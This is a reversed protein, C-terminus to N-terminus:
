TAGAREQLARVRLALYQSLGIGLAPAQEMLALLEERELRLLRCAERARAADSRPVGDLTSLEGFFGGPEVRSLLEGGQCLEVEGTLVFYLGDGEDGEAYVVEGEGFRLSELVEALSVLQQTSLRDFAPVGQLQVAVDMPDLVSWSDGIRAREEVALPSFSGALRRTLPDEDALLESWAESESPLSRRLQAAVRAARERWAGGELLPVLETRASGPLLAELAELLIDRSREDPARRLRRELEAIREDDELVSVCILLT